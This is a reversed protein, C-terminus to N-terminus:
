LIGDQMAQKELEVMKRESAKRYRELEDDKELRLKDILPESFQVDKSPDDQLKNRIDNQPFYKSFAQKWLELPNRASVSGIDSESIPPSGINQLSDSGAPIALPKGHDMQVARNTQTGFLLSSMVSRIKNLSSEIKASTFFLSAGYTHAVFRLTKAIVKKKEPDLEQYLDFKTGIIVLPVRFPELLDDDMHDGGLRERTSKKLKDWVSSDKRNAETICQEVRSNLYSLLLELTSWMDNPTSLNLVLVISSDLIAQPNIPIDILKCLSAGGGLEWIHGVAKVSNHGKARRGFTYELATTPKPTEDRDLFRLVLTTKGSDKDGLVLMHKEESIEEKSSLEAQQAIGIDWLSDGAGSSKVM